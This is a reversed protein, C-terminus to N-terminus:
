VPKLDISRTAEVCDSMVRGCYAAERWYPEALLPFGAQAFERALRAAAVNKERFFEHLILYGARDM